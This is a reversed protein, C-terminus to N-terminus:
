WIDFNIYNIIIIYLVIVDQWVTGSSFSTLTARSQGHQLRKLDFLDWIENPLDFCVRLCSPCILMLIKLLGRISMQLGICQAEWSQPVAARPVKAPYSAMPYKQDEGNQHVIIQLLGLALSCASQFSPLIIYFSTFRLIFWHDVKAKTSMCSWLM